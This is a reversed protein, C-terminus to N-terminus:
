RNTANAGSRQPIYGLDAAQGSNYSFFRLQSGGYGGYSNKADIGATILWGFRDQDRM